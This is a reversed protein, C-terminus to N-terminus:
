ELVLNKAFSKTTFIRERKGEEMVTLCFPFCRFSSYIRSLLFIQLLVVLQHRKITRLRLRQFFSYNQWIIPSQRYTEVKGVIDAALYFFPFLFIGVSIGKWAKSGDICKNETM